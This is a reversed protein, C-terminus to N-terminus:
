GLLSILPPPRYSHGLFLPWPRDYTYLFYVNTLAAWAAAGVLSAAIWRVRSDNAPVLRWTLLGFFALLFVYEARCALMVLTAIAFPLPQRNTFFWLAFLAPALGLKIEHFEDFGMQLVAPHLLYSGALLLGIRAQGSRST